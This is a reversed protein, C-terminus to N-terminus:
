QRSKLRLLSGDISEQRLRWGQLARDICEFLYQVCTVEGSTMFRAPSENVMRENDGYYRFSTPSSLSAMPRLGTWIKAWPAAWSLTRTCANSCSFASKRVDKSAFWCAIFITIAFYLSCTLLLCTFILLISDHDWISVAKSATEKDSQVRKGECEFAMLKTPARARACVCVCVRVGVWVCAHAWVCPSTINATEKDTLLCVAKSCRM